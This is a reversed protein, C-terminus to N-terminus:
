KFPSTPEARNSLSTPLYMTPDLKLDFTFFHNNSTYQILSNIKNSLSLVM